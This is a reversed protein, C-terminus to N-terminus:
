DGCQCEGAGGTDPGCEPEEGELGERPRVVAFDVDRFSPVAVLLVMGTEMPAEVRGFIAGFM